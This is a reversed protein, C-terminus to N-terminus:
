APEPDCHDLAEHMLAQIDIGHATALHILEILKARIMAEAERREPSKTMAPKREKKAPPTPLAAM